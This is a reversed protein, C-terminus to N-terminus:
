QPRAAFYSVLVFVGDTIYIAPPPNTLTEKPPAFSLMESGEVVGPKDLNELHSFPIEHKRRKGTYNFDIKFHDDYVYAAVLLNDFLKKQYEKDEISGRRLSSFWLLIDEKTVNLVDAHELTLQNSIRIEDAELEKLRQKTTPTIIGQEIAAMVNKIAKRTNRLQEELIAIDSSEKYRKGHEIVLDALNQIVEDDMLFNQLAATLELEVWDRRVSTKDCSKESRRKYCTYYHHQVGVKGTGSDGMMPGGCKGCFLKGTLLYDGKVWRRGRPNPKSRIQEQVKLFLEKGIIQPVGGEIRISDYLYVGTYRENDLIGHFSNKGWDNGRSTRIGRRNLDNAIDAYSEEKAVRNFIERVIADKPPDLEYKGDKSKKYGLPLGGNSVLCNQANYLMGRKINEALNDSYFQNVNMMNRLAFRGAATDGFDEKVYATRVGHTQLKAENQLAHLMNRGMRDSKYAVVVGFHNQSAHRLMKQFEPRKDTRGTVARDAYVHTIQINNALAYATCEEVQQEISVDRQAHSSYRAVIVGIEPPAPTNDKKKAM